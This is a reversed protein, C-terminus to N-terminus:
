TLAAPPIAEPLAGRTVRVNPYERCRERAREVAEVRNCITALRATLVGISCGAEFARVFRRGVLADM